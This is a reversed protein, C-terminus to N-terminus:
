RQRNGMPDYEDEQLQIAEPHERLYRQRDHAMLYLPAAVGLAPLVGVSPIFPAAAAAATGLGSAIAGHTDKDKQRSYTDYVGAGVGAIGLAKSAVSLPSALRSAKSAAKAESDIKAARLKNQKEAAEAGKKQMADAYLENRVKTLLEEESLAQQASFGGINLPKDGFKKYNKSSIKGSPKGRQYTQAAEPVGGTFDPKEINAYNKLWADGSSKPVPAKPPPPPPTVGPPTKAEVSMRAAMEPSMKAKSPNMLEDIEAVSGAPAGTMMEAVTGAFDRAGGVGGSLASPLSRLSYQNQPEDDELLAAYSNVSEESSATPEAQGEMSMPSRVNHMEFEKAIEPSLNTKPLAAEKKPPEDDMLALYPNKPESM